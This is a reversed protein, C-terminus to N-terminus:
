THQEAERIVAPYLGRLAEEQHQTLTDRQSSKYPLRKGSAEFRYVRTVMPAEGAEGALGATTSSQQRTWARTDVAIEGDIAEPLHYPVV